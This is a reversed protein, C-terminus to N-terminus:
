SEKKAAEQEEQDYQNWLKRLTELRSDTGQNRPASMSPDQSWPAGSPIQGDQQKNRNRQWNRIAAKWDRIKDWGKSYYYDVFEDPDITMPFGAEQIRVCYAEIEETTPSEESRGQCIGEHPENGELSEYSSNISFGNKNPHGPAIRYLIRPQNQPYRM